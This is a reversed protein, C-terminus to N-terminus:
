PTWQIAAVISDEIPAIAPSSGVVAVARGSVPIVRGRMRQEAIEIPRRLREDPLVLVTVPGAETEM